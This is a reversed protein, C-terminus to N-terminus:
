EDLLRDVIEETAGQEAARKSLETVTRKLRENAERDASADNPARVAYSVILSIRKQEAPTAKAYAAAANEDVEISIRETQM